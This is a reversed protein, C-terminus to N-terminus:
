RLGLLRGVQDKFSRSLKLQTGDRLYVVHEGHFLPELERVRSVNVITSRHIRVFREPDLSAALKHLSQRVLYSRGGAHIEAYYDQADIWDIEDVPLTSIRTGSRIVLRDLPADSVGAHRKARALARAFREDDFPKLVYDVVDLDFAHAAHEAFASVVVTTPRRDTVRALTAFGDLDPMQIDLFLLDVAHRRLVELADVGSACEDIVRVSPDGGLLLRVTQRALPEDDVILADLPRAAAKV